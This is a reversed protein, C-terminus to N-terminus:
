RHRRGQGHCSDCIRFPSLTPIPAGCRFCIRGSDLKLHHVLQENIRHSTLEKEEAIWENDFPQNFSRSFSYYLDIKKYYLELDDLEEGDCWPLPIGKGTIYCDVYDYFQHRLTENTEDFPITAARLLDLKDMDLQHDRLMQIVHVYRDVDMKQFPANNPVSSWIKIIDIIDYDLSLILESFGLKAIHITEPEQNFAEKISLDTGARCLIGRDYLGFRGARGGIQRVEGPKLPRTEFGDFKKDATFIVRQIPLNLGMGIADTAVLIKTEGALFREMQLRRTRYPLGGYIISAPTGLRTLEGALGLVKKRSFAIFADGPEAKELPVCGRDYLLPVKRQHWQIEYRDGCHSIVKELISLGEPAVCCHIEPALCGLIARTWAFGRSPDAIMQCEDLVAVEYRSHINLKEVTSAMHTDGDHIDEEEGTLLSCGLGSQMLTEQVELALLRLPSLYAGTAAKKLRQLGEYTKGTNTGGVHIVFKRSMARAEPYEDRPERPILDGLGARIETPIGQLHYLPALGYRLFDQATFYHSDIIERASKPCKAEQFDRLAGEMAEVLIYVYGQAIKRGSQPNRGVAPLSRRLMKFIETLNSLTAEQQKRLKQFAVECANISPHASSYKCDVALKSFEGHGIDLLTMLLEDEMGEKREEVMEGFVALGRMASELKPNKRSGGQPQTGEPPIVAPATGDRRLLRGRTAKSPAAAYFAAINELIKQYLTPFGEVMAPVDGILCIAELTLDVVLFPSETRPNMQAFLAEQDAVLNLNEMGMDYPRSLTAVDPTWGGTLKNCLKAHVADMLVRQKGEYGELNLTAFINILLIARANALARLQKKKM